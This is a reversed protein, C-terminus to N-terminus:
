QKWEESQPPQPLTWQPQVYCTVIEGDDAGDICRCADDCPATRQTPILLGCKVLMEQLDGGDFDGGDFVGEIIADVFRRMKESRDKLREMEAAQAEITDLLKTIAEPNFTARFAIDGSLGAYAGSGPTAAEVVKRMAAINIMTKDNQM